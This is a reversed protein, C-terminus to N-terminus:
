VFFSLCKAFSAYCFSFLIGGGIDASLDGLTDNLDGGHFLHYLTTYRHIAYVSSAREALEWLIGILSVCGVLLLVKKYVPMTKLEPQFTLMFFWGLIMGGIVHYLKDISHFISYIRFHESVTTAIFFLVLAALIPLLYKKM